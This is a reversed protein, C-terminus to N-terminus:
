FTKTIKFCIRATNHHFWNRGCSDRCILTFRAHQCCSLRCCVLCEWPLSFLNNNPPYWFTKPNQFVVYELLTTGEALVEVYGVMSGVHYDAACHAWENFLSYTIIRLIDSLRPKRLLFISCYLSSILEKWLYSTMSLYSSWAALMITQLVTLM